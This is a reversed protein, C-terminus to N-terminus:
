AAFGELVTIMTRVSSGTGGTSTVGYGAGNNTGTGAIDLHAWPITGSGDATQGVFERLFIGAVLMGGDRVSPTLNALDAFRSDLLGRLEGPLPMPWHAEGTATGAAVVQAVLADDGMVAATRRGLAV